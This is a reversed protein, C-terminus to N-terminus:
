APRAAMLFQDPPDLEGGSKLIRPDVPRDVPRFRLRAWMGKEEETGHEFTLEYEGPKLELQVGSAIGGVEVLGHSPVHFPVVIARDAPLEERESSGTSVEVALEGGERLTGFSVSGRRWSFGQRVHVDTWDNFPDQLEADFVALQSYSVQIAFETM